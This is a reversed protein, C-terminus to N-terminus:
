GAYDAAVALFNDEGGAAGFGVVKGDFAKVPSGGIFVWVAVDDDGGVGFVVRDDVRDFPELFVLSGLNM